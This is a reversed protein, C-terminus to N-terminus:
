KKTYYMIGDYKVGTPYYVNHSQENVVYIDSASTAGEKVNKYGKGFNLTLNSLLSLDIIYYKENDNSDLNKINDIDTCLKPLVPLEGHQVYYSAIKNELLEIDNYMNNLTRTSMGKYSNYILTTAIIVIILMTVGLAVMTIGKNSKLKTM